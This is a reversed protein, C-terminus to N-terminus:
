HSFVYNLLANLIGDVLHDTIWEVPVGIEHLMQNVRAKLGERFGNQDAIPVDHMTLGALRQDIPRIDRPVFNIPGMEGPLALEDSQLMDQAMKRGQDYDHDRFTQDFFGMFAFLASSALDQDSATIGYINMVDREGLNAVRELTLVSDMWADQVAVGLPALADYDCQYQQRIRTQAAGLAEGPLPNGIGDYFLVHLLQSATTGLSEADLPSPVMLLKEKLQAARQDLLQVQQNIKTATIWDQFGAQNMYVSKLQMVLNFYDANAEHFNQNGDSGKGHPSVFLYFRSENDLHNDIVDVLNKAMGLPENQLVGGDTYTFTRTGDPWNNVNPSTYDVRARQLDQTRFAIPFAGCAVASGRIEDWTELNDTAPTADLVRIMQDQHRTYIFQGNPKMDYGYDVGNLNTLAMGLQIVPAAAAHPIAPAVPGASAYRATLSAKSINVILNSSFLSHTAKEDAQPQQLAQISIGQVWANYFPNDYPDVFSAADLLMNQVAIAATMGGASAGTIVDIHVQEAAPTAPNTNHQKLADLVEYLVGAEYTGLSVAGAITIALRKSM